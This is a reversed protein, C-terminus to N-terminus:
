FINIITITNLEILLLCFSYHYFADAINQFDRYIIMTVVLYGLFAYLMNLVIKDKSSM